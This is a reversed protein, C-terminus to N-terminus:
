WAWAKAAESTEVQDISRLARLAKEHFGAWTGIRADEDLFASAHMLAGYIIVNPHNTLLWNTQVSPSLLAVRAWYTMNATYSNDPYPLVRIQGGLVVYHAPQGNNQGMGYGFRDMQRINLPELQWGQTGTLDNPDEVWLSIMGGFDDPLAIYESAITNQAQTVMLRNRLDDNIDSLAMTIFNPIQATLDDRDLTDAVWACLDDYTTLAM